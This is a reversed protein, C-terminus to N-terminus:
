VKHLGWDHYRDDKATVACGAALRIQLFYLGQKYEGQELTHAINYSNRTKRRHNLTKPLFFQVKYITTDTNDLRTSLM